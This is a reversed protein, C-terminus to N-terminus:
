EGKESLVEIYRRIGYALAERYRETSAITGGTHMRLFDYLSEPTAGTSEVDHPVRQRLRGLVERAEAAALQRARGNAILATLGDEVSRALAEGLADRSVLSEAITQELEQWREGDRATGLERGLAEVQARAAGVEELHHELLSRAAAALSEVTVLEPLTAAGARVQRRTEAAEAARSETLAQLTPTDSELEALTAQQAAFAAQLETSTMPAVDWSRGGASGTFGAFHAFPEFHM